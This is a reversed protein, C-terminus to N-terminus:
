FQSFDEYEDSNMLYEVEYIDKFEIEMIWGEDYPDINMIKPNYDLNNNIETIIGSLPTRLQFIDIISEISGIKEDIEVEIGKMPLDTFLIDTLNDLKLKTIGCLASFDDILRVWFHNKSYKLNEPTNIGEM